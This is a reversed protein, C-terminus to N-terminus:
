EKITDVLRFAEHFSAEDVDGSLFLDLSRLLFRLKAAQIQISAIANLGAPSILYSNEKEGDFVKSCRIVDGLHEAISDLAHYSYHITGGSM